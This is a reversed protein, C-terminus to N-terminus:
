NELPLHLEDLAAKLAELDKQDPHSLARDYNELSLRLRENGPDQELLAAYRARVSPPMKGQCYFRGIIRNSSDLLDATRQFVGQYYAQNGGFGCTGFLFVEKNRLEGAIQRIKESCTGKDTWSGLFVMDAQQWDTTIHGQCRQRIVQALQETNGTLSDCLVCIRM